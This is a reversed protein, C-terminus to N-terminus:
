PAAAVTVNAGAGYAGVLIGTVLMLEGVVRYRRLRELVMAISLVAVVLALKATVAYAVGASALQRAVPNMEAGLGAVDVMRVFTVLDLLTALVFGAALIRM